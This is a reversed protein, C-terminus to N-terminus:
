DSFVLHLYNKLFNSLFFAPENSLLLIKHIFDINSNTIIEKPVWFINIPFKTGRFFELNKQNPVLLETTKDIEVLEMLALQVIIIKLFFPDLESFINKRELLAVSLQKNNEYLGRIFLKAWEQIKAIKRNEESTNQPDLVGENKSFFILLNLFGISETSLDM